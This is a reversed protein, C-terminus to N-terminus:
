PRALRQRVAEFLLVGCAVSVNLSGARGAMPIAVLQDCRERTLRRIGSGENGLVLATPQRYDVESWHLEAGPDSGVIHIGRERLRALTRALNAVEYISMRDVAGSAAKSASAGLPASRSRPLVVGCAGAADASRICAGLNRPDEIGELILLLPNANGELGELLAHEDGPVTGRVRVVVGQHAGPHLRDLAAKPRPQIRIGRARALEVVSAIRADRRGKQVLLSFAREPHESLLATCAHLGAILDSDADGDM